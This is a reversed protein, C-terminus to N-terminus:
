SRRGLADLRKLVPTRDIAASFSWRESALNLAAAAAIAVLRAPRPLAVALGLGLIAGVPNAGGDGLMARERLDAPLGAALAGLLGAAAPVWSGAGVVVLPVAVMVGAKAARGPARDALNVLNATLTVLTACEVVFWGGGLLVGAVLGAAGVTIVKIMGGTVHGGLLARLHGGFGRASEDGRLDDAYGGVASLGAVIMVATAVDGTVSESLVAELVRLAVYGAATGALLPAGLVAPVRRGTVNTRYLRAPALRIAPGMAALAAGVGAGASIATAVLQEASM